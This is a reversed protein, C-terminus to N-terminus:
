AILILGPTLAALYILVAGLYTGSEEQVVEETKKEDKEKTRSKRQM